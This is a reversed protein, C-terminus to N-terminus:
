LVLLGWTRKISISNIFTAAIWDTLKDQIWASPMRKTSSMTVAFFQHKDANDILYATATWRNM